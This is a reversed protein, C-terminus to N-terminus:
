KLDKTSMSLCSLYNEAVLITVCTNSTEVNVEKSLTDKWDIMSVKNRSCENVTRTRNAAGSCRCVEKSTHARLADDISTGMTERHSDTVHVLSFFERRNGILCAMTKLANSKEDCIVAHIKTVVQSPAVTVRLLSM